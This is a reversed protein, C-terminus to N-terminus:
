GSVLRLNGTIKHMILKRHPCEGAQKKAFNCNFCLTQFGAPFGNAKLWHYLSAGSHQRVARIAAGDGNIHDISLFTLEDEGCCVCMAGYAAFVQARERGRLAKQVERYHEPNKWYCSRAEAKRAEPNAERWARKRPVESARRKALM